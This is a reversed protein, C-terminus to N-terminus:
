KELRQYLARYAGCLARDAAHDPCLDNDDGGRGFIEQCDRCLEPEPNRYMVADALAVRMTTRTAEDFDVAVIQNAAAARRILGAIVVSCEVEWGAVWHLIRADFKGVKVGAADCAELLMQECGELMPRTMSQDYIPAAVARAEREQEYPGTM